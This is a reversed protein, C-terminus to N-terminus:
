DEQSKSPKFWKIRNDPISDESLYFPFEVKNMKNKGFYVEITCKSERDLPIIEDDYVSTAILVTDTSEDGLISIPFSPQIIRYGDKTFKDWDSLQSAEDELETLKAKGTIDLYKIDNNTIFGIKIDKILGKKAGNNHFLLPIVLKFEGQYSSSILGYSIIENPVIDASKSMKYFNYLSLIVAFLAPILSILDIDALSLPQM